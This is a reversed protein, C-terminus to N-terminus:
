MVLRVGRVMLWRGQWSGGYDHSANRFFPAPRWLYDKSDKAAVFALRNDDEAPLQLKSRSFHQGHYSVFLFLSMDPVSM